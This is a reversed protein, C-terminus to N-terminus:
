PGRTRFTNSWRGTSRSRQATWRMSSPPYRKRAPISASICVKKLAKEVQKLGQQELFKVARKIAKPLRYAILRKDGFSQGKSDTIVDHTEYYWRGKYRPSEDMVGSLASMVRGTEM